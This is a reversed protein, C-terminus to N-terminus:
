VLTRVKTPPSCSRKSRGKRSKARKRCVNRQTAPHFKKSMEESGRHHRRLCRAFGHTGTQATHARTPRLHPRHFPRNGFYFQTSLSQRKLLDSEQRAASSGDSSLSTTLGTDQENLKQKVGEPVDDSGGRNGEEENHRIVDSAARGGSILGLANLIISKGAGTEGTLVNLGTGM